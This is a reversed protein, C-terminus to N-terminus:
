GYEENEEHDRGHMGLHTLVAAVEGDADIATHGQAIHTKGGLHVLGEM